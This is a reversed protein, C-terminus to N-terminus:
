KRIYAKLRVFNNYKKNPLKRMVTAKRESEWALLTLFVLIKHEIKTAIKCYKCDYVTYRESQAMSIVNNKGRPWKTTHTNHGGILESFRM